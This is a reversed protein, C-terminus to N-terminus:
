KGVQKLVKKLAQLAEGFLKEGSFGAFKGAASLHPELSLFGDFGDAKLGSLLGPFGGDGQGAPCISGDGRADKVHVYAIKDKLLDYAAPFAEQGCIVFNAPDFTMKLVPSDVADFLERCQAANEGYIERENELVLVIDKEKEARATFEGLRKVVSNRSGERTAEEPLYFSFIRIFGTEFIRALSIARELRKVEVAFPEALNTKGLPSGIASVKIGAEKLQAGYAAAEADGIEIINVGDLGRLEIHEIGLRKFAAIQERFSEAVEDAFGSIRFM